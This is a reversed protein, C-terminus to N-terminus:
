HGSPSHHDKLRPDDATGFLGFRKVREPNLSREAENLRAILRKATAAPIGADKLTRADKFGDGGCAVIQWQGQTRRLLARGGKEGQIWDALAHDGDVAIPATEVKRDPRDYTQAILDRVQAEQRAGQGLATSCAIALLWTVSVTTLCRIATRRM